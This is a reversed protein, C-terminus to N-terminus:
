IWAMKLFDSEFFDPRTSKAGGCRRSLAMKLFIPALPNSGGIEQVGLLREPGLQAVGRFFYLGACIVLLFFPGSRDRVASRRLAM